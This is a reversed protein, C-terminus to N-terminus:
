GSRHRPLREEAHLRMRRVDDHRYRYEPIRYANINRSKLTDLFDVQGTRILPSGCCVQEKPIIVRIGNRRLVEMADLATRPLRLNYM